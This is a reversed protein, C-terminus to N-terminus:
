QADGIESEIPKLAKGDDSVEGGVQPAPKTGDDPQGSAAPSGIPATNVPVRFIDGGPVPPMREKRRVDNVNMWGNSLASQYFESRAKQDGRLLGTFDYRFRYTAREDQFFLRAGFADQINTALTDLSDNVYAQEQQELTSFNAKSLDYVKHPPVRFLRCIELVQFARTQLFQSDENTMSLKEVTMGEELVATKHSNQVGGYANMWSQALRDSTPKDLKGPHKLVVSVQAGQRFLIAGHQQTAIALGVADQAAMIPSMGLYGGDVTVGRLHIVDDQHFTLGFGILPHSVNYFIHGAPSLLVSVRDWNIPILAEPIGNWGRKIVAFSNGRLELSMVLYRAFEFWTMWSNPARILANLPHDFDQQWDERGVDKEILLPLKAMDESKARVCAYVTSSQLASLPTVPIGTNSGGGGFAGALMPSPWALSYDRVVQDVAQRVGGATHLGVRAALNTLLGM